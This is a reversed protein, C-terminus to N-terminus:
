AISPNQRIHRLPLSEFGRATEAAVRNGITSTIVEEIGSCIPPSTVHDRRSVQPAVGIIVAKERIDLSNKGIKQKSRFLM